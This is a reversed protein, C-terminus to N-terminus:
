VARLAQFLLRAADFRGAALGALAEEYLQCVSHAAPHDLEASAILEVVLMTARGRDGYACAKVGDEAVTALERAM